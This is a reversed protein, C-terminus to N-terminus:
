KKSSSVDNARHPTLNLLSQM